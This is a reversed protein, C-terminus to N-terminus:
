GPPIADRLLHESAEVPKVKRVTVRTGSRIIETGRQDPATAGFEQAAAFALAGDTDSCETETVSEVTDPGLMVQTFSYRTTAEWRKSVQANGYQGSMRGGGGGTWIHGKVKSYMNPFPSDRFRPPEPGRPMSFTDPVFMVLGDAPFRMLGNRTKYFDTGQYNVVQGQTLAVIRGQDVARNKMKLVTAERMGRGVAFASVEEPPIGRFGRERASQLDRRIPEPLRPHNYVTEFEVYRVHNVTDPLQAFMENDIKAGLRGDATDGDSKKFVALYLVAGILVLGAAVAPLIIVLPNTKKRKRRGASKRSRARVPADDDSDDRRSRRPPPPEDDADDPDFRRDCDPCRVRQGPSIDKRTFEADCHPCTIRARM